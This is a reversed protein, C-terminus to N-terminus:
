KNVPEVLAGATWKPGPQVTGDPNIVVRTKVSFDPNIVRFVFRNTGTTSVDDPNPNPYAVHFPKITNKMGNQSTATIPDSDEDGHRMKYPQIFINLM